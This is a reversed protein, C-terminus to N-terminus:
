YRGPDPDQPMGEKALILKECDEITINKFGKDDFFEVLEEMTDIDVFQTALQADLQAALIFDIFNNGSEGM